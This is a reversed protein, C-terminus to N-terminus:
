PRWLSQLTDIVVEPLAPKSIVPTPPWHAPITVEAQGSHIVFPIGRTRLAEAVALALGERLRLDLIAGDLIETQAFQLAQKLTSAPGIIVGHQDAITTQLDFAIVPEDEVILIRKGNLV